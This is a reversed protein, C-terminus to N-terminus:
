LVVRVGLRWQSFPWDDLGKAWYVFPRIHKFADYCIDAKLTKPSDAVGERGSYQGYEVSAKGYHCSYSVKAGVSFADNQTGRDIQWCVFGISASPRLEGEWVKFSKGASLDFFYGPADYHRAYEYDDGTATLTVARFTVAPVYESEQLLSLNLSFYLNGGDHSSLPFDPNVRRAERTKQTDYYWEHFEGWVSLTAIRCLPINIKFTPAVTYDKNQKGALDGIVIDQSLEVMWKSDLRAELLDPVPFAYPGFFNPGIYSKEFSPKEIPVQAFMPCIGAYIIIIFSICYKAARIM